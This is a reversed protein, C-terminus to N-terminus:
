LNKMFEMYQTLAIDPEPLEPHWKKEWELSFYGTYGDEKLTKVIDAIPIDGKGMLCLEYSGDNRAHDKIHVHKIYPKILDYFIKWGDAYVKDSHEIDWLLGFNECEKVGNIVESITEVTNFDGHIELLVEVKKGQAYTCLERIGSIVRQIVENQVADSEIKDGFIRIFPISAITCVDIAKKGEDLADAYKEADHLNVSTGFGIFQLNHEQLDLITNKLNELYFLPIEEARMVGDVGRIELADYGLRSAEDMIKQFSWDPCGLTTFSLKM